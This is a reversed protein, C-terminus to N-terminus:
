SRGQASRIAGSFGDTIARIVNASNGNSVVTYVLAVTVIAGAISFLGDLNMKM